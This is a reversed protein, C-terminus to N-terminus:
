EFVSRALRFGVDDRARQPLESLRAGPRLRYAWERFSGGKLPHEVGEAPGWPDVFETEDFESEWYDGIWEMVNGATDYLGWPNPALRGVPHPRGSANCSFWAIEMLHFNEDCAISSIDGGYTEGVTGARAAWEWEAETPLRYGECDLPSGSESTIVFRECRLGNGPTADNCGDLEYCRDYGEADSRANAFSVAEWWTVSEVPCDLGCDWAESPNVDFHELWEGQTVETRDIAFPRTVSVERGVDQPARGLTGVPLGAEFEGTPPETGSAGGEGVCVGAACREDTSCAVGCGGCNAADFATLVCGSPCATFGPLCACAGNVCAEGAPDCGAYCGGCHVISDSAVADDLCLGDCSFQGAPCNVFAYAVEAQYAAYDTVSLTLEADMRTAAVDIEFRWPPEEASDVLEGNVAVAVRVPTLDDVEAEVFLLGDVPGFTTTGPEILRVVPPTRDVFYVFESEASGARNTASVHVLYRGEDHESRAWSFPRNRDITPGSGDDFSVEDVPGDILAQFAVPGRTYFPSEPTFGRIEPPSTPPVDPADDVGVDPTDVESEIDVPVDRDLDDAGVFLDGGDDADM